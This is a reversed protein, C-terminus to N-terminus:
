PDITILSGEEECQMLQSLQIVDQAQEDPQTLCTLAHFAKFYEGQYYCTLGYLRLASQNQPEWKLVWEAHAQAEDFRHIKFLYEADALHNELNMCKVLDESLLHLRDFADYISSLRKLTNSRQSKYYLSTLFSEIRRHLPGFTEEESIYLAVELLTTAKSEEGERLWLKEAIKIIDLSLEQKKSQSPEINVWHSLYVLAHPLTPDDKFMADFALQKLEFATIDAIKDPDSHFCQVFEYLDRFNQLSEFHLSEALKLTLQDEILKTFINQPFRQRLWLLLPKREHYSDMSKVLNSSVLNEAAIKLLGDGKWEHLATLLFQVSEEQPNELPNGLEKELSSQLAIKLEEGNQHCKVQSLYFRASDVAEKRASGSLDYSEILSNLALIRYIKEQFHSTNIVTLPELRKKVAQSNGLHCECEALAIEKWLPSFSEKWSKELWGAHKGDLQPIFCCEKLSAYATQYDKNLFAKLGSCFQVASTSHSEIASSHIALTAKLRPEDNAALDNLIKNFALEQALAQNAQNPNVNAQIQSRGGKEFHLLAKELSFQSAEHEGKSRFIYTRYLNFELPSQTSLTELKKEAEKFDESSWALFAGKIKSDTSYFASIVGWLIFFPAFIFLLPILSRWKM